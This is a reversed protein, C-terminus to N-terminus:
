GVGCLNQDASLCGLSVCGFSFTSKSRGTQIVLTIFAVLVANVKKKNQHAAHEYAPTIM